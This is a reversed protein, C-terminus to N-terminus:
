ESYYREAYIHENPLVDERKRRKYRVKNVASVICGTTCLLIHALAYWFGCSIVGTGWISNNKKASFSYNSCYQVRSRSNRLLISSWTRIVGRMSYPVQASIFELGSVVTLTTSLVFFILYQSGSTTLLQQWFKTLISYAHFQQIVEM